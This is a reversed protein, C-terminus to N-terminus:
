EPEVLEVTQDLGEAVIRGLAKLLSEDGVVLQLAVAILGPMMQADGLMKPLVGGVRAQDHHLYM